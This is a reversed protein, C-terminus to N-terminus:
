RKRLVDEIFYKLYKTGQGHSGHPDLLEHIVRCVQVEHHSADLINFINFGKGQRWAGVEAQRVSDVVQLLEDVNESETKEM